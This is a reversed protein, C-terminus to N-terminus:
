QETEYIVPGSVPDTVGLEPSLEELLHRCTDLFAIMAPRAAVLDQKRHWQVVTCFTNDGTKVALHHFAGPPLAFERLREVFADRHGAKVKFRVSSVFKSM